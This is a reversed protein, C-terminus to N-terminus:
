FKKFIYASENNIKQSGIIATNNDISVSIGFEDDEAGDSPILKTKQTWQNNTKEFIYASGSDWGNDDNRVAGILITNESIAVSNGFEDYEEGDNPILKTKQTWQNNTKEFIYASGSDWGNYSDFHKGVIIVYGDIAVSNGFQDGETGDTPILKTKQTWQNNTKEFIYASGSDTGNVDNNPAGIILLNGNIAVTTGFQDGETGDTPLLKTQQVWQNNVQEFIYASGSDIGNVNDNPAGIVATLGCIDVATGFGKEKGEDSITLIKQEIWLSDHVCGSLGVLLLSISLGFIICKKIM